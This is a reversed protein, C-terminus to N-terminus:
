KIAAAGESMTIVPVQKQKLYDVIEQFIEPTTGYFEGDYDIRHLALILWQKNAVANDIWHKVQDASVDLNVGRRELQFKDSNPTANGNITSAANTYGSDQVIELSDANYDGFPYAFTNIPGVNMSLLDQRAGNIQLTQDSYSLESLHLHDRTHSGIEQGRNYMDKIQAKSVYGSYGYDSLARSIIYFTGKMEAQEMIPLATQYHSLWGDDFRLTVAGTTFIGGSSSKLKLSTNDITLSGSTNLLHMVSVAKATEPVTFDISFTSWNSAPPVKAIDKYSVSGNQNQYQLTIITTKDSLYQDTYTYTKGPEVSVPNPRWKADGNSYSTINVKAAKGGGAGAVPYSFITTNTGWRGKVWDSPWGNTGIIELGPNPILNEPDSPPSSITNLSYDDTTLNGAQKIAHFITLSTANNVVTFEIVNQKFSDSAAVNGIDKYLYSGDGMKYRVTIHSEVNSKSYDSFQYTQGPTVSIDSFYWKVDGNTYSTIEVKIGNSTNGAAPYSLTRNNTGYGGKFWGTPLGSGTELSPNNILNPGLAPTFSQFGTENLSSKLTANDLNKITPREVRPIPKPRETEPNDRSETQIVVPSVASLTQNGLASGVIIISIITIRMIQKRM